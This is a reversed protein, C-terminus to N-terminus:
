EFVSFISGLIGGGGFIAGLKTAKGAAKLKDSKKEEYNLRGYQHWRKVADAVQEATVSAPKSNKIIEDATEFAGRLGFSNNHRRLHDSGNSAILNCQHELRAESLRRWGNVLYFVGIREWMFDYDYEEKIHRVVMSSPDTKKFPGIAADAIFAVKLKLKTPRLALLGM